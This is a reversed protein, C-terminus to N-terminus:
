PPRKRDTIRRRRATDGRASAQHRRCPPDGNTGNTPSGVFTAAAAAKFLLAAHEGLGATREDILVVVRGAFRNQPAPRQMDDLALWAAEPAEPRPPGQYSPRRFKAVRFPTNSQALYPGVVWAAGSGGGNRLDFVIAKADTLEALARDADNRALHELDIYGINGPLARWAQQPPAVRAETTRMLRVTRPGGSAGRILLSAISGPPGALLRSALAARLAQPTSAAILHALRQEAIAVPTNDISLIADGTAIGKALNKDVIESV